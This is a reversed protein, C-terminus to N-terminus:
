HKYYNNRNCNTEICLIGMNSDGVSCPWTYQHHFLGNQGDPIRSAVGSLSSDQRSWDLGSFFFFYIFLYHSSISVHILRHPGM